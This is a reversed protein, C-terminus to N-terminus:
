QSSNKVDGGVGQIRKIQTHSGFWNNFLQCELPLGQLLHVGNIHAPWILVNDIPDNLVKLAVLPEVSGAVEEEQSGQRVLEKLLKRARRHGLVDLSELLCVILEHTNKVQPNKSGTGVQSAGRERKNRGGM